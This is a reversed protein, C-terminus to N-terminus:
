YGRTEQLRELKKSHSNGMKTSNTERKSSRFDWSGRLGRNKLSGMTHVTVSITLLELNDQKARRQAADTFGRQAIVVVKHIPIGGTGQYKGIITEIHTVDLKRRHDKAEVAIKILYLGVEAEILIDIERLTDQGPVLASETVKAGSPAFARQIMAVLQQYDNTRQPM